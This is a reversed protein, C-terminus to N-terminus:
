KDRANVLELSDAKGASEHQAYAAKSIDQALGLSKTKNSGLLSPEDYCDSTAKSDASAPMAGKAIFLERNSIVPRREFKNIRMEKIVFM